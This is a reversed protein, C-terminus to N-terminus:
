VLNYILNFWTRISKGSDPIFELSHVTQIKFIHSSLTYIVTFTERILHNANQDIVKGKKDLDCHLLPIKNALDNQGVISYSFFIQHHLFIKFNSASPWSDAFNKLDSSCNIWVTFPWFLKQYWFAKKVQEQLNRM